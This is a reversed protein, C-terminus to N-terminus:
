FELISNDTFVIKKIVLTALIDEKAINKMRMQKSIFRNIRYSGGDKLSKGSIIKLDPNIKIGYLHEGLLDQFQISADILKIDKQYTNTLTYNIRYYESAMEQKYAYTWESLTLALNTAQAKSSTTLPKTIPAVKILKELELNKKELVKVRDELNNNAHAGTYILCLFFMIIYKNM